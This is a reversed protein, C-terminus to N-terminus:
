KGNGGNENDIRKWEYRSFTKKLYIAAYAKNELVSSPVFKDNTEWGDKIAFEVEEVNTGDFAREGIKVVSSPITARKIKAGSFAYAKIETVPLGEYTDPIEVIEYEGDVIGKVSYAEGSDTLEFLLRSEIGSEKGQETNEEEDNKAVADSNNEDPNNDSDQTKDDSDDSNEDKESLDTQQSQAANQALTNGAVNNDGCGGCCTFTILCLFALIIAVVKGKM